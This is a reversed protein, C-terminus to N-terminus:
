AAFLSCLLAFVFLGFFIWILVILWGFGIQADSREGESHSDMIEYSMKADFADIKGNRNWDTGTRYTESDYGTGGRPEIGM